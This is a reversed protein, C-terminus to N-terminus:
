ISKAYLRGGSNESLKHNICSFIVDLAVANYGGQPVIIDARRKYPEVFQEHMPKVTSNYQEVVSDLQRGREKVDRMIRRLIRVDADTDVYIKVDLLNCLKKNEFLLIGEVIIIQKSEVKTTETKRLHNRYDYQPVDVSNGNKLEKLHKILLETEFADPHDYNCKAREELPISSDSKYYSDMSVLATCSNFENYIKEALTTKGSGTGGCIGIIVRKM